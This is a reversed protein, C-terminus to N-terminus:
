QVVMDGWSESTDRPNSTRRVAPIPFGGIGDIGGSSHLYGDEGDGFSMYSSPGYGTPVGAFAAARASDNRSIASIPMDPPDTKRSRSTAVIRAVAPKAVNFTTMATGATSPQPRDAVTTDGGSSRDRHVTAMQLIDQIDVTNMSVASANSSRKQPYTASQIRESRQDEPVFQNWSGISTRADNSVISAAYKEDTYIPDRVFEDSSFPPTAFPSPSAQYLDVKKEDPPWRRNLLAPDFAMDTARQRRRRARLIYLLVLIVFFVFLSAGVAIGIIAGQSLVPTVTKSTKSDTDSASKTKNFCSVPSTSDGGIAILKTTQLHGQGDDFLLVVEAQRIGNMTYFATGPPANSVNNATVWTTSGRPSFSTIKPAVPTDYTVNFTECQNLVDDFHYFNAQPLGGGVCSSILDAPNSPASVGTVDSVQAAPGELDDLSAIFETGAPLPIFTLQIGTSNSAGNPIAIRIPPVNDQLPLITLTTPVSHNNAGTGSFTLSVPECQVVPSLSFKFSGLVVRPGLAVVGLVSLSALLFM